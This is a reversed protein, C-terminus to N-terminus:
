LVYHHLWQLYLFILFKFKPQIKSNMKKNYLTLIYKYYIITFAFILANSKYTSDNANQQKYM